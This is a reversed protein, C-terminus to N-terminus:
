AFCWISSGASPLVDRYICQWAAKGFREKEGNNLSQTINKLEQYTHQKILLDIKYQMTIQGITTKDLGTKIKAFSRKDQM